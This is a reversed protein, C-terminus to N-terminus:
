RSVKRSDPQVRQPGSTEDRHLARQCCKHGHGLEIMVALFVHGGVGGGRMARPRRLARCVKRDAKAQEHRDGRRRGIEEEFVRHLEQARADELPL